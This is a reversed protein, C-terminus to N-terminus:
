RLLQPIVALLQEKAPESLPSLFEANCRRVLTFLEPGLAQGAPTASILHARRSTPHPARTILGQEELGDLARSIVYAPRDYIKGIEAQTLPGRELTTMMIPFQPLSLGMPALGAAMYADMQTSLRNILYGFSTERVSRTDDKM